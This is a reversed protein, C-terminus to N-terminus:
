ILPIVVVMRSTWCGDPTVMRGLPRMRMEDKAWFLIVEM